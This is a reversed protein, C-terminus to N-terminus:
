KFFNTIINNKFDFTYSLHNNFNLIKSIKLSYKNFIISLKNENILIDSTKDVEHINGFAKFPNQNTINMKEFSNTISVL